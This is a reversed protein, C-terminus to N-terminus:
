SRWVSVRVARNVQVRLTISIVIGECFRSRAYTVDLHLIACLAHSSTRLSLRSRALRFVTRSYQPEILTPWDVHKDISFVIIPNSWASNILVSVVSRATRRLLSSRPQPIVFAHAVRRKITFNMTSSCRRRRM